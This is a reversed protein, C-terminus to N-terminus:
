HGRVKWEVYQEDSNCVREPFCFTRCLPIYNVCSCDWHTLVYSHTCSGIAILMYLQFCFIVIFVDLDLCCLLRSLCTLYIFIIIIYIPYNGLFSGINGYCGSLTHLTYLM